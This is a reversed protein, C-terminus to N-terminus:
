AGGGLANAESPFFRCNVRSYTTNPTDVNIVEGKKCLYNVSALGTQIRASCISRFSAGVTNYVNVWGEEPLGALELFFLGDSPATYQMQQGPTLSLNVGSLSPYAQGSSSKGFARLLSKVSM